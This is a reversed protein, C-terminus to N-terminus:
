GDLLLTASRDNVTVTYEGPALGGTELLIDVTFPTLMQACMMDAPRDVFLQITIANGAVTQQVKSVRSCADHFHGATTAYSSGDRASITVGVRSSASCIWADIRCSALNM